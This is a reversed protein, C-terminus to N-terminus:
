GDLTQLHQVFRELIEYPQCGVVMLDKGVFTPVGTIGHQRTEDWDRDVAERMSREVLMARTEDADLGSQDAIEVLEERDGINTGSVFYAEYLRRHLGDLATTDLRGEAWKALEQALRSNYTHTREGYPLGAERMLGQMRERFPTLDRGPFLDQLSM